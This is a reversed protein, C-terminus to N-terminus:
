CRSDGPDQLVTILPWDMVFLLIDVPVYQYITASGGAQEIGTKEAEAVAFVTVIRLVAFVACHSKSKAIHGYMSYIIIAVKPAPMDPTTTTTTTAATDTDTPTPEPLPEAAPASAPAPETAPTPQTATPETATPQTTQTPQTAPAPETPASSAQAPAPQQPKIPDPAAKKPTDDSLNNKQRKSPFCM